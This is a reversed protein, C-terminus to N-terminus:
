GGQLQSILQNIDIGRQQAMSRAVGEWNGHRGQALMSLQPNNEILNNIMAQPSGANRMQQMLAKTQNIVQPNLQSPIPM